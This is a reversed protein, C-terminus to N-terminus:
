SGHEDPIGEQRVLQRRDFAPGSKVYKRYIRELEKAAKEITAHAHVWQKQRAAIVDREAYAWIVARAIDDPSHRAVVQRSFPLIRRIDSYETSVVPVGLGMAELVSNPFGEHDSTVYLVDCQRVIAPVDTRLGAFKIKDSLGLREYHKLVEAKYASTDSWPGPRYPSPASLRDGVFLVRWAPDAAVLRAASELALHYNKRPSISGVLCAIRIRRDGFFESRYDATTASAQRELEDPRIGNWVVHVDDSPLGFLRQAFAKGSFTNAVVGRALRRTLRHALSQNWPLRYNDNRESNLVPIGTGLAAVRSYFDGDFLFGHIIDPQWRDITKRLRWLVAPDLKARKQDAILTVASSALEPRRPVDRNLTYIVIEHGRGALQRALEVLQKEAGGFALNSIVYLVRMVETM